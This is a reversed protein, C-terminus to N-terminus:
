LINVGFKLLLEVVSLLVFSLCLQILDHLRRM